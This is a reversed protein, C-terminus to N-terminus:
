TEVRRSARTEITMSQAARLPISLSDIISLQDPIPPTLAFGEKSINVRIVDDVDLAPNVLSTITLSQSSGLNSLLEKQARAEAQAQSAIKEDRIIPALRHGFPGNYYTASSPDSDRAVGRVTTDNTSNEGLVIFANYINGEWSISTGQLAMNRSDVISWDITDDFTWVPSDKDLDPESSLTAVGMPDFYLTMGINSALDQCIQWPDDGETFVMNNTTESTTPFNTEIGNYARGLIEGITTIVNSGGVITLATEFKASSIMWSRDFLQGLTIRPYNVEVSTIRFTGLPVYEVDDIGDFAVGRWVRIQTGSPALLSNYEQPALTGYRDILTLTGSRRTESKSVTISGDIM